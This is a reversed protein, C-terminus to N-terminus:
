RPSEGLLSRPVFVLCNGDRHLQAWEPHALLLRILGDDGDPRLFFASPDYQKLLEALPVDGWAAAFHRDWEARSLLYYRGDHTVRWDPHGGDAVVGGWFFNTYITGRVRADRLARVGAFPYHDAFPAPNVALPVGVALLVAVAALPWRWRSRATTDPTRPILEAWVPMVAIGWFLMFRHSLLMAVTLLAFAALTAPRVHRGRVAVAILTLGLGLWSAWRGHSLPEWTLPLWESVELYRSRDANEAAIRFIDFGAPTAVTSATALVLLAVLRWPFEPRHKWWYRVSEAFLAALVVGAGVAVSPHLNQWAVFLVAGLVATTRVGLNSRVLVLLLGFALAAFSQPRVSASPVAALWGVYLGVAVPWVNRARRALSAAVVAFGGFWVVADVLWLLTWGGLQRAAAYVVQALWAVVALPEAEKGALFPEYKPLGTALTIEGLKLQWFIDVDHITRGLQVFLMVSAAIALVPVPGSREGLTWVWGAARRSFSVVRGLGPRSASPPPDISM